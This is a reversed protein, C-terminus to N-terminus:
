SISVIVVEVVTQRNKRQLFPDCSRLWALQSSARRWASSRLANRLRFQEVVISRGSNVVYIMQGANSASAPWGSFM